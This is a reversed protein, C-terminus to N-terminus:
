RDLEDVIQLVAGVGGGVGKDDADPLADAALVVSVGVLGPWQHRGLQPVYQGGEGSLAAPFGAAPGRLRIKGTGAVARYNKNPEDGCQATGLDGADVDVVDGVV